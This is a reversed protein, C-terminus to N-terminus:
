PESRPPLPERPDLVSDDNYEHYMLYQMQYKRCEPCPKAAAFVDCGQADPLPGAPTDFMRVLPTKIVRYDERPCRVRVHMPIFNM